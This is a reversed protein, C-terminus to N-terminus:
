TLILVLDSLDYGNRSVKYIALAMSGVAYGLLVLHFIVGGAQKGIEKM